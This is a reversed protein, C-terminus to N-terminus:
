AIMVPSAYLTMLFAACSRFVNSTSSCGGGGSSGGGGGLVHRLNRRRRDSWRRQHLHVRRRWRDLRDRCRRRRVNGRDRRSRRRRRRRRVLGHRRLARLTVQAAEEASVIIRCRGLRRTSLSSSLRGQGNASIAANDTAIDSPGRPIAGRREAVQLMRRRLAFNVGARSLLPLGVVSVTFVGGIM